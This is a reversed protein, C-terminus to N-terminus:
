ISLCHMTTTTNEYLEIVRKCINTWKSPRIEESCGIIPSTQWVHGPIENTTRSYRSNNTKDHFKGRHEFITNKFELNYQSIAIATCHVM